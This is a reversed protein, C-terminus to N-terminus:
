TEVIRTHKEKASDFSEQFELRRQGDVTLEFRFVWFRESESEAGEVIKM